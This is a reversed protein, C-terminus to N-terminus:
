VSGCVQGVQVLQSYLQPKFRRKETFTPMESDAQGGPIRFQAQPVLARAAFDIPGPAPLSHSRPIIVEGRQVESTEHMFHHRPLSRQTNGVARKRKKKPVGSVIELGGQGQPPPPATPNIEPKHQTPLLPM